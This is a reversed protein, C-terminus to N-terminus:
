QQTTRTPGEKNNDGQHDNDHPAEEQKEGRLVPTNDAELFAAEELWAPSIAPHVTQSSTVTLEAAQMGIRIARPLLAPEADFIRVYAAAAVGLLTDGAGVPSALSANTLDVVSSPKIDVRSGDPYVLLVGLKDRTVVFTTSTETALAVAADEYNEFPTKQQEQFMANAMALVEQANPFCLSAKALLANLKPAVHRATPDLWLEDADEDFSSGIITLAAEPLDAEVILLRKGKPIDDKENFFAEVARALARAYDPGQDDFHEYNVLAQDLVAVYIPIDDVTVCSGCDVGLHKLHQQIDHNAATVLSVDAGARACAEAVNRGVGGHRQCNKKAAVFSIVDLSSAGLVAVRRKTGRENDSVTARAVDAAIKANRLVLEVNAETSVGKSLEHVKRLLWPTALNGKHEDKTKEYIELAEEVAREIIEESHSNEHPVAVICGGKFDLARSAEIWSAIDDASDARLPAKYKDSVSYFTAFANTRWGFVAVGQTELVELTRGVDLISKCGACVVAVPHRGLEVLDASIDLSDQGGFHVGGVGGTAFVSIGAVSCVAVTAAVTTSGVTKRCRRTKAAVAVIDRKSCKIAYGEDGAACVRELEEVTLGVKVGGDLVAITAPVAGRERVASALQRAVELSRPYPLGHTLITSELAVIGRSKTRLAEAVEPHIDLWRGRSGYWRRRVGGVIIRRMM